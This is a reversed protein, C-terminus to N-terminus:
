SLCKLVAIQFHIDSFVITIKQTYIYIFMYMNIYLYMNIYTNIYMYSIRNTLFLKQAILAFFQILLPYNLPHVYVLIVFSM